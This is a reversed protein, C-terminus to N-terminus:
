EDSRPSVKKPDSPINHLHASRLDNQACTRAPARVHLVHFSWYLLNLRLKKFIPHFAKFNMIYPYLLLISMIVHDFYCSRVRMCTGKAAIPQFKFDLYRNQKRVFDKSIKFM